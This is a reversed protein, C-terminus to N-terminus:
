AATATTKATSVMPGLARACVQVEGMTPQCPLSLKVPLPVAVPLLPMVSVTLSAAASETFASTTIVDHVLAIQDPEPVFGVPETLSLVTLDQGGGLLDGFSVYVNVPDVKSESDIMLMSREPPVYEYTGVGNAVTVIADANQSPVVLLKLSPAQGIKGALQNIGVKAGGM